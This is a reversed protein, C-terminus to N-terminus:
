VMLFLSYSAILSFVFLVAWPICYQLLSMILEKLGDDNLAAKLKEGENRKEHISDIIPDIPSSSKEKFTIGDCADALDKDKTHDWLKRLISM